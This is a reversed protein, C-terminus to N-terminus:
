HPRNLADRKAKRTRDVFERALTIRKQAEDRQQKHEAISKKMEDVEKM